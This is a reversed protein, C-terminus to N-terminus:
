HGSELEDFLASVRSKIEDRIAAVEAPPKGDPDTLDWDRNEGAWGAPCVDQASCGMTIVYDSQMTEEFTVERPTRDSLDIGIESMSEVVEDHVYDAPQTGGTVLKIEDHLGRNELEQEAFAYAMQSRGANQVCILAVVTPESNNSESMSETIHEPSNIPSPLDDILEIVQQEIETSLASVTEPDSTAPEIFGWDRTVVGLPLDDISISCGMLAVVDCHALEETTVRQPTQSSLDYGKEAMVDVVTPFIEDAPDTGGSIVEVDTRGRARLQTKAVAAAIQSRGANEVCVFAIRLPDSRVTM